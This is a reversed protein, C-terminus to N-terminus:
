KLQFEPITAIHKLLLFCQYPATSWSLNWLGDDYYNQPIDWKFIDTAIDYDAPTYLEKSMFHNIVVQTIYYPDISDNSLDRALDVLTFEYGNDFLYGLYLELLLWRGTLTSSNIWTEDRQWGSVDPPDYINQGILETYYVFADILNNDYYFETEKTFNLIVDYPSKIIVGLAREDFFHESKFLLKLMPVLEFNNAILADALPQIINTEIMEDVSPSVFFRYLKECIYFALENSREQFLIDIVDDYGWFGTQGFITKEGADFTSADFYIPSGWDNWHNYGTLARATELIDNQTYGNGEGLTFLEYLERAYNENPNNNTNEFGNLFLLMSPSIGIERVFDKYNGLAHTQILNYYQFLFPPYGFTEYITVFHNMWFFTLRGHLDENLFDNVTQIRWANFQPFAENEFDSYDNYIWYGWYPAPTPPQNHATDVLDDIFDGPALALAADISSQSAGFSLRRYVHNVKSTDWPNQSTPEYATLSSTNCSYSSLTEM